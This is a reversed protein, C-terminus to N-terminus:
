RNLQVGLIIVRQNKTTGEVTEFKLVTKETVGTLKVTYLNDSTLKIATESGYPESGAFGDVAGKATITYSEGGEFKAGSGSGDSIKLSADPKGNWSGCYFTLTADGTFGLPDSLVTGYKKSTGMKLCNYPVSTNGDMYLLDDYYSSSGETPFYLDNTYDPIDATADSGAAQTVAFSTIVSGDDYKLTVTATRAAGKNAGAFFFVSYPLGNDNIVSAISSGAFSGSHVKGMGGVDTGGSITVATIGLWDSDVSLSWGKDARLQYESVAGGAAIDGSAVAKVNYTVPLEVAAPDPATTGAEVVVAKIDDIYYREKKANGNGFRVTTAANAGNIVVGYKMFSFFNSVTVDASDSGNITGGNYVTIQFDHVDDGNDVNANYTAYLAANFTVLVDATSTGLSSFPVTTLYGRNGSNGLKVWGEARAYAASAASFYQQFAAYNDTGVSEATIEIENYTSGDNKNTPWGYASINSPYVSKIWDFDQAFLTTGVTAGGGASPTFREGTLANWDSEKQPIVQNKSNNISVVGKLNGSGQPVKEDKWDAYKQNYMIVTDGATTECRTTKAMTKELDDDIVQVGDIEVYMSEYTGGNLQGINIVVPEKPSNATGTKVVKDVSPMIAELTGYYLVLKSGKLNVKLEDGLAYQQTAAPMYLYLGGNPAAGEQICIAKDSFNANNDTVVTGVVYVDDTIITTDKYSAPRMARIESIKKQVPEEPTSSGFREGTLANWDSEKQPLIQYVPDNDKYKNVGAVGCIAGSGQPVNMDAWASGKRTYMSFQEGAANELVNNGSMKNGLSDKVVQVGEIKVYMSQWKANENKLQDVTITVPSVPAPASSIVKVKSDDAVAIEYMGNYLTISSGKLSASIKDGPAFTNSEEKSLYIMVGNNGATGDQVYVTKASNVKLSADSTVTAEIKVNDNITTSSGGYLARVAEVSTLTAEVEAVTFRTGTLGAFDERTQPLIEMTEYFPIFIGNLIGSGQPVKDAVWAATQSSTNGSYMVIYEGAETIVKVNKEMTGSLADDIVQVKPTAVYMCQYKMLDAYAVSVPAQVEKAAATKVIKDDGSPTLQVTGGYISINGGDMAVTVEDGLELVNKDSSAFRVCIGSYEGTGDEIFMSKNNVNGGTAADINSIVRGKVVIGDPLSVKAKDETLQSSYESWLASIATYKTESGEAAAQTVKVAAFVTSTSFKITAERAAGDNAKVTITVNTTTTGEASSSAPTVTIWDAGGLDATWARNATVSVTSTGAVNEIAVSSPEASIKPNEEEIDKPCGWLILAAGAIALIKTFHVLRM